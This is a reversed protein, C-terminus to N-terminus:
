GREDAVAPGLGALAIRVLGRLSPVATGGDSPPLVVADARLIRRDCRGIASLLAVHGGQPPAARAARRLPEAAVLLGQERLPAGFLGQAAAQLREALRARWGFEDYALRFSAITAAGRGSREVRDIFSAGERFWEGDLFVNPPLVMFWPARRAVGVAAAVRGCWGAEAEVLTCGAADAVIRTGDTSGADAVIVERVVGEAAGSVLSSLTRAM